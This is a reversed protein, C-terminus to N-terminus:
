FGPQLFYRGLLNNLLSQLGPILTPLLVQTPFSITKPCVSELHLFYLYSLRLRVQFKPCPVFPNFFVNINRVPRNFRSYRRTLSLQLQTVSVFRAGRSWRSTGSTTGNGSEDDGLLLLYGYYYYFNKELPPYRPVLQYLQTFFAQKSSYCM